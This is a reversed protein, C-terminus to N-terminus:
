GSMDSAYSTTSTYSSSYCAESEAASSYASPVTEGPILQYLNFKVTAGNLSPCDTSNVVVPCWNYKDTLQNFRTLNGTDPSFTMYVRGGEKLYNRAEAMFREMLQYGPDYFSMACYDLNKISEEEQPYNFPFNWFVMNFKRNNLQDFLDSRLFQVNVNHRVANHQACEVAIPNIDTATVDTLGHIAAQISLAGCGTGVELMSEKLNSPFPFIKSAWHTSSNFEPSFVSPFIEFERGEVVAKHYGATRNRDIRENVVSEDQRGM